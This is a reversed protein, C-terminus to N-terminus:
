IHILSPVEGTNSASDEDRSLGFSVFGAAIGGEEALLIEHSKNAFSERWATERAPVSLGELYEDPIQGVYTHKWSAVHAEALSRSDEIQATRIMNCRIIISIPGGRAFRSREYWWPM